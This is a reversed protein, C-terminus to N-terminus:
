RRSRRVFTTAIAIVFLVVGAMVLLGPLWNDSAPNVPQQQVREVTAATPAAAIQPPESPLATASPPLATPTMTPPPAPSESARSFADASTEEAPESSTTSSSPLAQTSQPVTMQAADPETTVPQSFLMADPATETLAPVGGMMGGNMEATSTAPQSLASGAAANGTTEGGSDSQIGPATDAPPAPPSLLTPTVSQSEQAIAPAAIADTIAESPEAMIVTMEPQIDQAETESSSVGDDNLLGTTPSPQLAVEQQVAASPPAPSGTSLSFIVSGGIILLAAAAASLASFAASTPFILWRQAPRRLMAPTLTFNRPARRPPLTKLLGVTARLNNLERRLEAEAQLRLELAAREAAPLADDLYASLLEYDQDTLM